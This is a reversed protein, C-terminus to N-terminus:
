NARSEELRRAVDKKGLRRLEVLVAIADAKPQSRQAEWHSVAASSVGCLQAMDAQSLGLRSRLSTIGKATIRERTQTGNHSPKEKALRAASRTLSAVERKLAQVEERLDSLLKKNSRTAKISGDVLSKAEKRALRRIEAKLAEYASM